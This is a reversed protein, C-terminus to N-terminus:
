QPQTPLSRAPPRSARQHVGGHHLDGYIRDRLLNAEAKGLARTPHRLRVRVLLNEQGNAIGIRERAPRPLESAPTRSLVTM